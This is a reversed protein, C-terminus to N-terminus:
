PRLSDMNSPLKDPFICAHSALHRSDKDFCIQEQFGKYLNHRTGCVRKEDMADLRFIDIHKRGEVSDVIKGDKAYPSIKDYFRDGETFCGEEKIRDYVARESSISHTIAFLMWFFTLSGVCFLMLKDKLPLPEDECRYYDRSGRAM